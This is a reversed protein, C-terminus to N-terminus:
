KQQQQRTKLFNKTIVSKTKSVVTEHAICLNQFLIECHHLKNPKQGTVFLHDIAKANFYFTAFQLFSNIQWYITVLHFQKLHM